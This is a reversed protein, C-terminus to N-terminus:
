ETDAGGPAGYRSEALFKLVARSPTGGKVDALSFGIEGLARSDLLYWSGQSNIVGKEILAAVLRHRNENEKIVNHRFREEGASLGLHVSSRFSTLIARLDVYDVYPVHRNEFDLQSKFSRLRPPPDEVYLKLSDTAGLVHTLYNAALVECAIAVIDRDRVKGVSLTEAEIVVEDALIVVDPGLTLHESRTGLILGQDTVVTMNRLNRRFHFAGSVDSIEFDVETADKGPKSPQLFHLLSLDSTLHIFAHSTAGLLEVEQAWSQILPEVLSEAVTCREAGAAFRRIFNIFFPGVEGVSRLPARQLAMKATLDMCTIAKVYDGFVVSAFERGKVFPHDAVFQNASQEYVDRVGTPLSSPPPAVLPNGQVLSAVRIAQELPSYLSDRDIDAEVDAPLVSQLKAGLQESFKAQERMLVRMVIDHLLDNENQAQAVALTSREAAPNRVALSEALAILVPAYGLFDRSADWGLALDPDANGQIVRMVQRFRDDRLRQFPLRSALHVNYEPRGSESFRKELYSGIFREASSRDFFALKAVALPLDADSFALKILEATDSRSLLIVSPRRASSADGAGSVRQVNELFALFNQTGARFHAEDLSDVVVGATGQAIKQIYTGGFGLADQILGSLSYSGVQAQEARVLPWRLKEALAQAAATKGVAGPAEVLLVTAGEPWDDEDFTPPVYGDIMRPETDFAEGQPSVLEPQETSATLRNLLQELRVAQEETHDHGGMM